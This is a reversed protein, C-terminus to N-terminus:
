TTLINTKHERSYKLKLQKETGTGAEVAYGSGGGASRACVWVVLVVLGDDSVHASVHKVVCIELLHSFFPFM